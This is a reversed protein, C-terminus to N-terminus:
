WSLRGWVLLWCSGLSCCGDLVNSCLDQRCPTMQAGWGSGGGQREGAALVTKRSESIRSNVNCHLQGCIVM